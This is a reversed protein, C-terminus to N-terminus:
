FLFPQNVLREPSRCSPDRQRSTDGGIPHHMPSEASPPQQRSGGALPTSTRRIASNSLSNPILAASSSRRSASGSRPRQMPAAGSQGASFPIPSIIRKNANTGPKDYSIAATSPSGGASQAHTPRSGNPPQIYAASSLGGVPLPKVFRQNGRGSLVHPIPAAPSRGSAPLPTTTRKRASKDQSYTATTNPSGSAM